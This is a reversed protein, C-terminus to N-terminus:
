RESRQRRALYDDLSMTPKRPLSARKPPAPATAATVEIRGITVQVPPESADITRKRVLTARRPMAAPERLGYLAQPAAVRDSEKREVLLPRVPLLHQVPSPTKEEGVFQRKEMPSPENAPLEPQAESSLDIPRHEVSLKQSVLTSVEVPFQRNNNTRPTNEDSSKVEIQLPRDVRQQHDHGLPQHRMSPVGTSSDTAVAPDKIPVRASWTMASTEQDVETAPQHESGLGIDRFATEDAVPAYLEPVRPEITAIQGLQRQALRTLFDSM